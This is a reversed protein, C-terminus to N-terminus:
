DEYDYKSSQPEDIRLTFFINKKKLYNKSGM